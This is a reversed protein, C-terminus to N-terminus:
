KSLCSFTPRSLGAPSHQLCWFSWFFLQTWPWVHLPQRCFPLTLWPTPSLWSFMLSKQEAYVLLGALLVAASRTKGAGFVGSIPLGTRGECLALVVASITAVVHEDPLRLLPRMAARLAQQEENKAPVTNIGLRQTRQLNHYRPRGKCECGYVCPGISREEKAFEKQSGRQYNNYKESSISYIDVTAM